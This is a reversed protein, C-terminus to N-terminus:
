ITYSIYEKFRLRLRLWVAEHIYFSFWDYRACPVRPRMVLFGVRYGENFIWVFGAQLREVARFPFFNSYSNNNKFAKFLRGWLNLLGWYWSLKCYLIEYDGSNSQLHQSDKSWDLHTIYSSHGSLRGHKKYQKGEESVAFIYIYNDHSGIALYAGDPFFCLPYLKSLRSCFFCCLHAWSIKVLLTNSVTMNNQVSKVTTSKKETKPM